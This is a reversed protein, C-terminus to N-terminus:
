LSFEVTFSIPQFNMGTIFMLLLLMTYSSFTESILSNSKDQASTSYFCSFNVSVQKLSVTLNSLCKKKVYAQWHKLM